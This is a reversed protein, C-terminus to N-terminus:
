DRDAGFREYARRLREALGPGGIAAPPPGLQRLLLDSGTALTPPRDPVAVPAMWFRDAVESLPTVPLDALAAAAGGVAAAPGDDSAASASDGATAPAEGASGTGRLERL